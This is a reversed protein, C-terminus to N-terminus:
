LSLVTPLVRAKCMAPGSEIRLVVAPRGGTGLSSHDRLVAVCAFSRLVALNPELEGNGGLDGFFM